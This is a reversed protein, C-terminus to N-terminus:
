RIPHVVVRSVEIGRPNMNFNNKRMRFKRLKNQKEKNM